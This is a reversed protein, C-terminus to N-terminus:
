CRGIRNIYVTHVSLGRYVRTGSSGREQMGGGDWARSVRTHAEYLTHPRLLSLALSDRHHCHGRQDCGGKWGGM